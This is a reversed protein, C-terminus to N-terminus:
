KLNLEEILKFLLKHNKNFRGAGEEMQYSIGNKKIYKTKIRGGFYNNKEFLLINLSPDYKLLHYYTYLGSIGGGIIIYDYLM